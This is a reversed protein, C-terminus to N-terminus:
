AYSTCSIFYCGNTLLDSYSVIMLATQSPSLIIPTMYSTRVSYSGPSSVIFSTPITVNYASNQNSIYFLYQSGTVPNTFNLTTLFTEGLNNDVVINSTLFSKSFFNSQLTISVNSTFLDIGYIVSTVAQQIATPVSINSAFISGNTSIATAYQGSSSLAVGAAAM